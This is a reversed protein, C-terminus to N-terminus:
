VGYGHEIVEFDEPRIAGSKRVEEAESEKDFKLCNWADTTLMVAGDEISQIYFRFDKHEILYKIEM